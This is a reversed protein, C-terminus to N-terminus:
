FYPPISEATEANPKEPTFASCSAILANQPTGRLISAAALRYMKDRCCNLRSTIEAATFENPPPGHPKVWRESGNLRFAGCECFTLLLERCTGLAHATEHSIAAHIHRHNM